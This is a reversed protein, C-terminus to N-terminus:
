ELYVSQEATLTSTQGQIDRSQIRFYWTGAALNTLTHQTTSPNTINITETLNGATQSYHILYGDIDDAALASTDSRQTPAAWNLTISHLGPKNTGPNPADDTAPAGGECAVLISALLLGCPISFLRTYM